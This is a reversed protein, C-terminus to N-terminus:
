MDIDFAVTDTQDDTNIDLVILWPGGMSFKFGELLYVGDEIQQTMLPQTPFGHNHIPMGGSISIEADTVLTNDATLITATWSHMKGLELPNLSSTITVNFLGESSTRTQTTQDEDSAAISITLM